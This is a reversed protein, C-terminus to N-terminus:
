RYRDRYRAEVDEAMTNSIDLSEGRLYGVVGLVTVLFGSIWATWGTAGSAFDGVWPALFLALGVVALGLYDRTPDTALLSWLAIVATLGGLGIMVATAVVSSDVVTSALVVTVIGVVLAVRSIWYSLASRRAAGTSYDHVGSATPPNDQVWATAGLAMTLFGAIWATWAAGRDAVFGAGLWPLVFMALGVVFLGWHDPTRNRAPLSLLGFFAIFVGFGFTLGEGVRTSSVTLAAVVAGIGVALAAWGVWTSNRM